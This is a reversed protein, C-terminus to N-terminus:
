KPLLLVLDFSYSSVVVAIMKLLCIMRANLTIVMVKRLRLNYAWSPVVLFRRRECGPM